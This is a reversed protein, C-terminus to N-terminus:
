DSPSSWSILHEWTWSAGTSFSLPFSFFHLPVDWFYAKEGNRHGRSGAPCSACLYCRCLIKHGKEQRTCDPMMLPQPARASFPHCIPELIGLVFFSPFSTGKEGSVTSGLYGALLPNQNFISFWNFKFKLDIGLSKRSHLYTRHIEHLM